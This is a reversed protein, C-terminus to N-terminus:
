ARENWKKVIDDYEWTDQFSIDCEECGVAYANIEDDETPVFMGMIYAEGGCFPCPKLDIKEKVKFKHM